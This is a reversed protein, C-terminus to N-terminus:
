VIVVILLYTTIDGGTQKDFVERHIQGGREQHMGVWPAGLCHTARLWRMESASLLPRQLSDLAGSM